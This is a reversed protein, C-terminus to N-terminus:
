IRDIQIKSVFFLAMTYDPQMNHLRIRPEKGVDVVDDPFNWKVDKWTCKGFPMIDRYDFLPMLTDNDDISVEIPSIGSYMVPKRSRLYCFFSQPKYKLTLQKIEDNMEKSEIFVIEEKEVEGDTSIDFVVDLSDDVPMESVKVVGKTTNVCSPIEFLRYDLTGVAMHNMFVSVGSGYIDSYSKLNAIFPEVILDKCLSIGDLEVTIRPNIIDPDDLKEGKKVFFFGRISKTEAPLTTITQSTSTPITFLM